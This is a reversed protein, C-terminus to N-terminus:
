TENFDGRIENYRSGDSFEKKIAAPIGGVVVNPPVPKTVISGAQIISNKGITKVGPMIIARSSIWVNDEITLKTPFVRNTKPIVENNHEGLLDHGHTIIKVGECFRVDNGIELDGTYDIDVNRGIRANNGCIFKSSIVNHTSYIRVNYQVTSGKGMNYAKIYEKSRKRKKEYSLDYKPSSYKICISQNKKTKKTYEKKLISEKKTKEREKENKDYINLNLYDNIDINYIIKFYLIDFFYYFRFIANKQGLRAVQLSIKWSSQLIFNIKGFM